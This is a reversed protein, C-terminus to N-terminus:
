GAKVQSERGLLAHLIVVKLGGSVVSQRVVLRPWLPIQSLADPPGFPGGIGVMIALGAAIFARDDRNVRGLMQMGQM